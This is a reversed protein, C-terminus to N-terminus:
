KGTHPASIFTLFCIADSLKDPFTPFHDFTEARNGELGYAHLANRDLFPVHRFQLYEPREFSIIDTLQYKMAKM